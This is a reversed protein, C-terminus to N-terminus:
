AAGAPIAARNAPGASVSVGAATSDIIELLVAGAPVERLGRNEVLVAISERGPQARAARAATGPALALAVDERAVNHRGPTPAAAAFDVSNDDSDVGDLIRAVSRGATLALAARTGSGM